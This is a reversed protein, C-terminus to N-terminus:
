CYPPPPPAVSPFNFAEFLIGQQGNSENRTFGPRFNKGGSSNNTNASNKGGDLRFQNLKENIKSTDIYNISKKDKNLHKIPSASMTRELGNGNGNFGFYNGGSNGLGIGRGNSIVKDYYGPSQSMQIFDQYLNRAKIYDIHNEKNITTTSVTTDAPQYARKPTPHAIVQSSASSSSGTSMTELTPSKINTSVNRTMPASEILTSTTDITEQPSISRSEMFTSDVNQLESAKVTNDDQKAKSKKHVKIRRRKPKNPADKNSYKYFNNAQISSIDKLLDDTKDYHQKDDHSVLLEIPIGTSSTNSNNNHGHNINNVFRHQLDANNAYLSNLLNPYSKTFKDLRTRQVINKFKPVSLRFTERSKFLQMNKQLNKSSYILPFENEEDDFLKLSSALENNTMSVSDQQSLKSKIENINNDLSLYKLSLQHILTPLTERFLDRIQNEIQKQLFNALVQVTDFTSSVKISDLPDNRFVLTLGKSKSFVIIGIGNIKIDSLKLDLPIAFQENSLLFNPTIFEDQSYNCVEKELSNHYYINLPNAQVKTHLTLHFDGQYDIKFIGRFRDRDLEGIELIEFDPAIKGFNLDKITINSALINPSKGSNLASTLLEKTWNTLPETELSNWNVKFSM